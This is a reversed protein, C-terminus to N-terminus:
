GGRGGRGPAGAGRAVERGFGEPARAWGCGPRSWRARSRIPGTTSSGSRGPWWGGPSRTSRSRGRQDAAPADARGRRQRRLRHRGPGPRDAAPTGRGRQLGSRGAPRQQDRHRGAAAEPRGAALLSRIKRRANGDDVLLLSPRTPRPIGRSPWGTGSGPPGSPTGTTRRGTAWSPSGPSGRTSCTGWSRPSRWATTSTSGTRRCRRSQDPRLLRLPFGAEALLLVRPDEQQLESLLFADVSRSAILRRMEDRPDGDPVVIVMSYGRRACAAALSQLFQQM